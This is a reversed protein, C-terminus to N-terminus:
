EGEHESQLRKWKALLSQGRAYGRREILSLLRVVIAVDLAPNERLISHIDALDQPRQPTVSLVKMALLAEAAATPVLVSPLAELPEASDVVEREIGSTSFVLDCVIGDPDRLRATALRGAADHEVTALVSYGSGGLGFVYREAEADDEVVVAVDIDRTFRVEGRVSAALGGVLAFRAGQADLNNTLRALADALKM